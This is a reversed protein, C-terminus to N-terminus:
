ADTNKDCVFFHFYACPLYHKICRLQTAEITKIVSLTDIGRCGIEWFHEKHNTIDSYSPKTYSYNIGNGLLQLKVALKTTLLGAHDPVSFLIKDKSVRSMEILAQPLMEFPLHELVQFCCSVDFCNSKCPINLISAVIDPQLTSDYDLTTVTKGFTRLLSTLLGPGPGVELFSNGETEQCLLLQERLALFREKNLYEDTFYHQKNVKPKV